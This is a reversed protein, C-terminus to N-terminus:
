LLSPFRHLQNKLSQFSMVLLGISTLGVTFLVLDTAINEAQLLHAGNFGDNVPNSTLMSPYALNMRIIFALVFNVAILPYILHRYNRQSPKKRWERYILWYSLALIIPTPAAAAVIFSFFDDDQLLQRWVEINELAKLIQNLTGGFGSILSVFLFVFFIDLFLYRPGLPKQPLIQSASGKCVYKLILISTLVLAVSYIIKTLDHAMRGETIGITWLSHATKTAICTCYLGVSALLVVAAWRAAILRDPALAHNTHEEPVTSTMRDGAAGERMKNVM